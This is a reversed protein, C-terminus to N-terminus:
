PSWGGVSHRILSEDGRLGIVANTRCYEVSPVLNTTTASLLHDAFADPADLQGNLTWQSANQVAVNRTTGHWSDFIRAVNARARALRNRDLFPAAGGGVFARAPGYSPPARLAIAASQQNQRPSLVSGPGGRRDM